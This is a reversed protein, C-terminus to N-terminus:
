GSQLLRSELFMIDVFINGAIGIVDIRINIGIDVIGFNWYIPTIKYPVIKITPFKM